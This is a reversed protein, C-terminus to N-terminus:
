ILAVDGGSGTAKSGGADPSTARLAPAGPWRSRSSGSKTRTGAAKNRPLRFPRLPRPTIFLGPTEGRAKQGSIENASLLRAHRVKSTTPPANLRVTAADCIRCSAFPVDFRDRGASRPDQILPAHGGSRTRAHAPRHHGTPRGSRLRPRPPLSRPPSNGTTPLHVVPIEYANPGVSGADAIRSRALPVDFRDRRASRLTSCPRCTRQEPRKAVEADPCTARPAPAGPWRSRSSGSKTRTGAAKNRPLRFPRLPRPYYFPGPDGGPGKSRQDRQRKSAPCPPGQLHDAPREAPGNGCRLHPLERLSCRLSRTRSFAPRSYPACTRRKADPCAGTQPSRYPSRQALTTPTTTVPPFRAPALQGRFLM